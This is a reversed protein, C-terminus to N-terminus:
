EALSQEYQAKLDRIARFLASAMLDQGRESVLFAAEDANTVFGMEVLVAPMSAGWLVYFGAQKVGRSHRGVRDGFQAEVLAALRESTRLYASGALTQVIHQEDNLRAYANPNAELRVVANEREMVAQASASRHLGLFYTETGRPAAVGPPTSNVHLSVFLKGGAENALRGRDRLTVFRDAPRTYVVRVGLLDELYAGLKRAVGLTVDKERVGHAAAGGDHGGHGADIVIVDLRWRSADGAPGLLADLTPRPAKPTQASVPTAFAAFGCALLALAALMRAATMPGPHWAVFANM